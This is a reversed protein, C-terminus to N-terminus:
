LKTNPLVLRHIFFLGIVLAQRGRFIETHIIPEIFFLGTQFDGKISFHGKPLTALYEFGLKKAHNGGGMKCQHQCAVQACCFIV